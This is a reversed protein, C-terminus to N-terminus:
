SKIMWNYPCPFSSVDGPFNREDKLYRDRHNRLLKKVKDILREVEDPGNLNNQRWIRRAEKLVARLLDEKNTFYNSPGGKSIKAAKM